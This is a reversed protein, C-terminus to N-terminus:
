RSPLRRVYGIRPWDPPDKFGRRKAERALLLGLARHQRRVPGFGPWRRCARITAEIRDRRGQRIAKVLAERTAEYVDPIVQWTWGPASAGPRTRRVAEYAWWRLRGNRARADRWTEGDGSVPAAAVLVWEVSEDRQYAILRVAPAGAARQRHLHWRDRTLTPYRRSLKEVVGPWRSAPTIGVVHWPSADLADAIRQMFRAPTTVVVIQSAM